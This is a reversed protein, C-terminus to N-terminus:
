VVGGVAVKTGFNYHEGIKQDFKVNAGKQFVMVIDSGGFQFYSIEQGKRVTDGKQVSLVVSSVQAMGIPLVAVRGLLPNEILILGRAQLFQYGPRDPAVIDASGSASPLIGRHAAPLREDDKPRIYRHMGLKLGGTADSQQLIVELYCM